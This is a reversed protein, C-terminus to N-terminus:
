RLFPELTESHQMKLKRIARREINAVTQHSRFIVGGIQHLTYEHGALGYRLILVVQERETLATFALKIAAHLERRFMIEDLSSKSPLIDALIM